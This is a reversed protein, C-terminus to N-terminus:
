IVFTFIQEIFFLQKIVTIEADTRADLVTM